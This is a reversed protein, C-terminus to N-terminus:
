SSALRFGLAGWVLALWALTSLEHRLSSFLFRGTGPRLRLRRPVLTPVRQRYDEYATGFRAALFEEEVSICAGYVTALAAAVGLLLLLGERPAHGGAAALAVGAANLLNGLYLPNRVLGYPGATVLAPAELDQSRTPQGTYGLAWLRTGEGVLSLLLGALLSDATPRAVAVLLVVLPAQVAGRWRFLFVRLRKM